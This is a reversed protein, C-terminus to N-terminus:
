GFCDRKWIKRRVRKKVPVMEMAGEVPCVLSCLSCGQCKDESVLPTRNEGIEIATYAGDRCAVYCRLCGICKDANLSARVKYDRDLFPQTTVYPLSLGVWESVSSFGKEEMFNELGSLLDEIIRFGYFMGATGVQVTRAGLLLYEVADVWSAIGGMASIPLGLKPDRALEVIFRLIIPKIAPGSYGGFASKGGVTPLPRLTKLDVGMLCRITNTASIANAGGEKAARAPIRIDTVNPSMKVMIPLRVVERTWETIRKALRGIEGEGEQSDAIDHPCSFMLELMDAGADEARRALDKWKEDSREGRLSVILISGPYDRKTERIEKFSQELPLDNGLDINEFGMLHNNPSGHFYCPSVKPRDIGAILGLTKWVAGAWGHDFARRVQDGSHTAPSPAVIFPNKFRLGCFEISLDPRM